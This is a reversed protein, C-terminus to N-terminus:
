ADQIGKLLEQEHEMALRDVRIKDPNFDILYLGDYSKARSLAVYTMGCGFISSGCDVIVYDLTSGQSKHISISWSLVLPIQSRTIRSTGDKFETESRGIRAIKGNRFLVYVYERDCHCVIGRSGNAFGEKVEINKTLMVQAGVRMVVSRSIITDMFGTMTEAEKGTVVTERYRSGTEVRRYVNDMAPYNVDTTPLRSCQALNHEHVDRKLSFLQSPKIAELCRSRLDGSKVDCAIFPSPIAKEFEDSVSRYLEALDAIVQRIPRGKVKSERMKLYEVQRKRLHEIDEKTQQGVRIRRLLEFHQQSDYRYPQSFYVMKFDCKRWEDSLFCYKQNIPPLQLFDGAVVLQLGGFPQDPNRRVAQGVRSLYEFTLQGFMSIEDIFLIQTKNWADFKDRRGRIKGVVTAIPDQGIGIGSWRHITTGGISIASVGTTSTMAYTVRKSDLYEAVRRLTYSKGCGGPGGLFINHGKELLSIIQDYNDSEKVSTVPVESVSSM